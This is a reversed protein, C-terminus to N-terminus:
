KPERVANLDDFVQLATSLCAMICQKVADLLPTRGKIDCLNVDAGAGLLVSAVDSDDDEVSEEEVAAKAKGNKKSTM